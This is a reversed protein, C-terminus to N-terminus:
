QKNPEVVFFTKNPGGAQGLVIGQKQEDKVFYYLPNGKYSLQTDQNYSDGLPKFDNKNLSSPITLKGAKFPPWVDACGM